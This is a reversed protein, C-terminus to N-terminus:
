SVGPASTQASPPRSPPGSPSMGIAQYDAINQAQALADSAERLRAFVDGFPIV